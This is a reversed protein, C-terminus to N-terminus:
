PLASFVCGEKVLPFNGRGTGIAGIVRYIESYKLWRIPCLSLYNAYSYISLAKVRSTQHM